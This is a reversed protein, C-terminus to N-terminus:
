KTHVLPSLAHAFSFALAHCLFRLVFDKNNSDELKVLPSNHDKDIWYHLLASLIQLIHACEINSTLEGNRLNQQQQQQQYLHSHNQHIFRVTPELTYVM